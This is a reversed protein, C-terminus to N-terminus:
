LQLFFLYRHASCLCEEAKHYYSLAAGPDADYLRREMARVKKNASLLKLVGDGHVVRRM